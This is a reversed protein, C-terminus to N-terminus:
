FRGGPIRPRPRLDRPRSRDGRSDFPCVRVLVPVHLILQAFSPCGAGDLDAVDLDPARVRDHDLRHRDGVGAVDVGRHMLDIPEFLGAALHGANRNGVVVGGLHQPLDLLPDVDGQDGVDVEVVLVGQGRNLLANVLNPEIGAVDATLLLEALDNRGEAVGAHGAADAHVGARQLHVQDLLVAERRGVSEHGRRKAVDLNAFIEAVFVVDDAQLARVDGHGHLGVLEERLFFSLTGSCMPM